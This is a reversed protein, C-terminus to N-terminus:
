RFGWSASCSKKCSSPRIWMSCAAAERHAQSQLEMLRAALESSQARLLARDVLVGAREMRFLVPVLPQEIDEYVSKLAPIAEIQPWIAQHLQLTV